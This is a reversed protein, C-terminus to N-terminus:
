ITPIFIKEYSLITVEWHLTFIYLGFIPFGLININVMQYILELKYSIMYLLVPKLENLDEQTGAEWHM